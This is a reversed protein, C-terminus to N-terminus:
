CTSPTNSSMFARSRVSYSVIAQRICVWVIVFRSERVGSEFGNWVCSQVTQFIAVQQSRRNLLSEFDEDGYILAKLKLLIKRFEL